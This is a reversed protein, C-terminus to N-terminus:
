RPLPLAATGAPMQGPRTRAYRRLNRFRLRWRFACARMIRM